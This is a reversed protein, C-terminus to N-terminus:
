PEVVRNVDAWYSGLGAVVATFEDFRVPKTVFSNVGRQYCEIIDRDEKSSTLVVVPITRTEPNAKLRSLVELGDVKPLRLDLLIVKPRVAGTGTSSASLFDLAEAGDKVWVVHRALDVSRLAEMTLEADSASDEVLLLDVPQRTGM